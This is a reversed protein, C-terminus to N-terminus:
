HERTATHDIRVIRFGDPTRLLTDWYERGTYVYRVQVGTVTGELLLEVASRLSVPQEDSHANRLRKLNVALVQTAAEIDAVVTLLQARNLSGDYVDPLEMTM